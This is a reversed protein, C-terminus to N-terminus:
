SLDGASCNQILGDNGYVFVYPHLSIVGGSISVENDFTLTTTSSATANASLTITTGVIATVTTGAAIGYGKVVQGSAIKPNIETLTVTKSGSTTTCNDVAFLRAAWLITGTLPGCMLRTNVESDISELDRSPHALLLNTQYGM